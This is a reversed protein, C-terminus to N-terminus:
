GGNRYRRAGRYPRAYPTERLSAVSVGLGGASHVFLPPDLAMGVHTIGRGRPDEDGGFFLLDGARLQQDDVRQFGTWAAQQHADRPIMVGCLAYVRQTFGSCDIGFPTRGGWLYPVGVFRLAYEALRDASVGPACSEPEMGTQCIWLLGGTPTVLKALGSLPDVDGAASVHTGITLLTRQRSGPLSGDYVPEFLTTVRMRTAAPVDPERRLPQRSVAADPLWGEYADPTRVLTFAGETRILDVAEGYIAQSVIEGDARPADRMSVVNRLVVATRPPEPSDSM